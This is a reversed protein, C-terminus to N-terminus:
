VARKLQKMVRELPAPYASLHQILREIWNGQRDIVALLDDASIQGEIYAKMARERESLRPPESQQKRMNSKQHEVDRRTTVIPM